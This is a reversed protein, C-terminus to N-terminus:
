DDASSQQEHMKNLKRVEIYVARIKTDVANVEDTTAVHQLMQELATAIEALAYLITASLVSSGLAVFGIIANGDILAFGGVFIGGALTLTAIGALAISVMKLTSM